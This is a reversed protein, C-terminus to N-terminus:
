RHVYIISQDDHYRLRWSHDEALVQALPANPEILVTQVGYQHLLTNWDPHADYMDEYGNLIRTTYLTDARSDMYDQYRPFLNWLMYGGWVYSVFVHPPLAHSRMYGIAGAPFSSREFQRITDASVVYSAGRVYAVILLLLFIANVVSRFGGALRRGRHSWGFLQQTYLAVLPAMLVCWVPVNRSQSFALHTFALVMLLHTWNVTHRGV